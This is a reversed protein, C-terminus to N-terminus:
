LGADATGGCTSLVESAEEDIEAQATLLLYDSLAAREEEDLGIVDGFATVYYATLREVDDEGLAPRSAGVAPTNAPGFVLIGGDVAGFEAPCGLMANTYVGLYNFWGAQQEETLSSTLGATACDTSQATAYAFAVSLLATSRAAEDGARDCWDAPFLGDMGDSADPSPDPRIGADGADDGGGAAPVLGADSADILRSDVPPPETHEGADERAEVSAGPGQAQDDCSLAFAGCCYAGGCWVLLGLRSSHAMNLESRLLAAYHQFDEVGDLARRRTPFM